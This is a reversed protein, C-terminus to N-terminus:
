FDVQFGGQDIVPQVVAGGNQRAIHDFIMQPTMDSRPVGAQELERAAKASAVATVPQASEFTATTTQGTGVNVQVATQPKMLAPNLIKAYSTANKQIETMMKFVEPNREPPTEKLEKAKREAEQDKAIADEVYEAQFSLLHGIGKIVEKADTSGVYDSLRKGETGPLTCVSGEKYLRCAYQLACEDCVTKDGALPFLSNWNFNGKNVPSLLYERHSEPANGATWIEPVTPRTSYLHKIYEPIHQILKLGTWVLKGEISKLTEPPPGILPNADWNIRKPEKVPVGKDDILRRLPGPQQKKQNGNRHNERIALAGGSFGFMFYLQIQYYGFVIFRTQPFMRILEWLERLWEREPGSDLALEYNRLKNRVFVTGYNEALKRLKYGSFGAKLDWVPYCEIEGPTIEYAWDGEVRVVRYDDFNYSIHSMDIDFVRDSVREDYLLNTFGLDAYAALDRRISPNQSWLTYQAGPFKM